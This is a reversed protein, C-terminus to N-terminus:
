GPPLFEPQDVDFMPGGAPLASADTLLKTLDYTTGQEAWTRLSEQLLWLGMVNRLYRVRGDVGLENTFNASSSTETLIPKDLEVGVLGWTGCSVYAFESPATAPVAVVASATDHSGVSFVPTGAAIGTRACIVDLLPGVVDGPKRLPGFQDAKVDVMRLLEPDWTWSGSALLGTTSANTVETGAVGTLWYTLLDPILLVHQAGALRGPAEAFLQFITNFPLHQLGNRAYLDHASVPFEVRDTRADRYHFPNGMLQGAKDILGYDIAWSDVGIGSLRYKSAAITLGRLIEEFIHELNWHLGTPLRLPENVFRHVEDIELMTDSAIGVVVRGSSAGLDIAAFAGSVVREGCSRQLWAPM